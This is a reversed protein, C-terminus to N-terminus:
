LQTIKDLYINNKSLKKTFSRQAVFNNLQLEEM